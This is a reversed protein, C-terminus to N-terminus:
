LLGQLSNLVSPLLLAARKEEAEKGAPPPVYPNSGFDRPSGWAKQGGVGAWKSTVEQPQGGAKGLNSSLTEGGAWEMRGASVYSEEYSDHTQMRCVLAFPSVKFTVSEPVLWLSVLKTASPQM